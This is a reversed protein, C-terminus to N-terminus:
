KAAAVSAAAALAGVWDGGQCRAVATGPSNRGHQPLHSMRSATPPSYRSSAQDGAPVPPRPLALGPDRCRSGGPSKRLVVMGTGVAASLLAHNPPEPVTTAGAVTVAFLDCGRGLRLHLRLRRSQSRACRHDQRRIHSLRVSVRRLRLGNCPARHNPDGVPAELSEAIPWSAIRRMAGRGPWCGVPHARRQAV